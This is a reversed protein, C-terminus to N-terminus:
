QFKLILSQKIKDLAKAVEKQNDRPTSFEGGSWITSAIGIREWSLLTDSRGVVLLDNELDSGTVIRCNYKEYASALGLKVTITGDIDSVFREVYRLDGPFAKPESNLQLSSLELALKISEPSYSRRDSTTSDRRGSIGTCQLITRRVDYVM